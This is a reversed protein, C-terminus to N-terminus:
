KKVFKLTRTGTAANAVAVYVGAPLATVDLTMGTGKAVVTGNMATVTMVAEASCTLQRGDCSLTFAADSKIAGIGSPTASGYIGINDLILANGGTTKLHYAVYVDKDKYEALSVGRTKSWENEGKVSHIATYDYWKDDGTSVCIDYNEYDTTSLASADWVLHCNNDDIHMKPLVLWRDATSTPDSFWTCLALATEQYLYHSNVGLLAAGKDGYTDVASPHITASDEVRYTLEEPFEEDEFDYFVVGPQGIVVIEKEATNNEANPDNPAIVEVKITHAGDALGALANEFTYEKTAMFGVKDKRTEKVTGDVYLNIDVDADTVAINSVSFKVDRRNRERLYGYPETFDDVIVDVKTPDVKEISLDDIVLWNEDADSYAHFGIFIKQAAPIKFLSISELYSDNTMPDITCIENTMAEPTPATGWCVKLRETHNETASYWFRMLYDGAEVELPDIVVWDDAANEKNYNYGLFGEGTRSFRTFFSNTGVNWDGDDNNLNLYTFNSCDDDPEFGNSYPVGAPAIHRVVVSAADNGPDVDNPDSTYVKLEYKGRPTSCDAKATFTYEATEGGKLTGSFRETVPTGGDITFSVDFGSIDKTLFNKVKVKVTEQGLGEGSEPSLIETVGLDVPDTVKEMTVSNLYLRFRDKPTVAHFGIFIKDGAALDTIFYGTTPSGKIDPNESGKATMGEVTPASGYWVEVAEGYSSGTCNYRILYSGAEPVTIEPSILWDDGDNASHYNYYVKSPMGDASFIWTKEDNNADIWTWKDFDEQTFDSESTFDESFVPDAAMATQAVLLCGTALLYIKRM